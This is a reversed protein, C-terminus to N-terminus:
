RRMFEDPRMTKAGLQKCKGTVERDRSVVCLRRAEKADYVKEIIAADADPVNHMTCWPLYENPPISPSPRRVDWYIEVEGANAPLAHQLAALTQQRLEMASLDEDRLLWHAINYGDLLYHVALHYGPRARRGGASRARCARV